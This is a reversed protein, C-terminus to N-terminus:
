QNRNDDTSNDARTAPRQDNSDYIYKINIHSAFSSETAASRVYVTGSEGNWGMDSLVIPANTSGTYIAWDPDSAEATWNYELTGNSGM